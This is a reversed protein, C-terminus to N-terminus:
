TREAIFPNFVIEVLHGDADRLCAVYGGWQVTDPGRTLTAGLERMQRAVNDVEETSAVNISLTIAEFGQGVHDVGFYQALRERPYLALWTGPLKIYCLEDKESCEADSFLALYYHKARAMDSVALTIVSLQRAAHPDIM